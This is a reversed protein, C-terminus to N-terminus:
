LNGASRASPRLLLSLAKRRPSEGTVSLGRRARVQRSGQYESWTVYTKTGEYVFEYRWASWNWKFASSPYEALSETMAEYLIDKDSPRVRQSPRESSFLEKLADPM